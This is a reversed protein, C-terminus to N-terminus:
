YIRDWNKPSLCCGTWGGWGSSRPGFAWSSCCWPLSRPGNTRQGSFTDFRLPLSRYFHHTQKGIFPFQNNIINQNRTQKGFHGYTEMLTWSHLSAYFCLQQLSPLLIKSHSSLQCHFKVNPCQATQHDIQKSQKSKSNHRIAMGLILWVDRSFMCATFTFKVWYYAGLESFTGYFFLKQAMDLCMFFSNQAMDLNPTNSRVVHSSGVFIMLDEGSFGMLERQTGAWPNGWASALTQILAELMPNHVVMMNPISGGM